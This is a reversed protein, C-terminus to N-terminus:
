VSEGESEDPKKNTLLELNGTDLKGAQAQKLLDLLFSANNRAEEGTKLKLGKKGQVMRAVYSMVNLVHKRRVVTDQYEDGSASYKTENPDNLMQEADELLRQALSEAKRELTDEIPIDSENLIEDEVEIVEQLSGDFMQKALIKDPM